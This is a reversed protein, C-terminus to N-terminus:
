IDLKKESNGYKPGGELANRVAEPSEGELLEEISLQEISTGRVPAVDCMLRKESTEACVGEVTFRIIKSEGDFTGSFYKVDAEALLPLVALSLAATAILTTLRKM